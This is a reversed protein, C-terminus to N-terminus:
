DVILPDLDFVGRMSVGLQLGVVWAATDVGPTSSATDTALLYEATALVSWPSDRPAVGGAVLLQSSHGGQLERLQSGRLVVVPLQGPTASAWGALVWPERTADGAVGWARIASAGAGFSPSRYSARAGLRHDRASAVGVSGQRALLDVRLDQEALPRASVYLSVSQGANRERWRAGEGTTGMLTVEVTRSPAVWTAGVGADSRNLVSTAQVWPKSVIRYGFRQNEMLVWPVDILGAFATVGLKPLAVRAEAIQLEPVYAEGNIGLYGGDPASRAETFAVRASAAGSSLGGEIRMRNFQLQTPLAADPGQLIGRGSIQAQAFACHGQAESGMEYTVPNSALFAACLVPNM